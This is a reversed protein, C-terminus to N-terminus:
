QPQTSNSETNPTTQPPVQMGPLPPIPPTTPLQNQGPVSSSPQTPQATQVAATPPLIQIPLKDGPDLSVGEVDASAHVSYIYNVHEFNQAASAVAQMVGGLGGGANAMQGLPNGSGASGGIYLELNVTKTEGPAITFAERSEVEAITQAMTRGQQVGMGGMNGGGMAIGQEKAQAKIEAKVSNITQSSDASITVAVPIVQNSPVSSPAAIHIKVGGHNMNQKLKGFLGM